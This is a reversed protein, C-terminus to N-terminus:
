HNGGISSRNCYDLCATLTKEEENLVTLLQTLQTNMRNSQDNMRNANDLFHSIYALRIWSIDHCLFIELQLAPPVALSVNVVKYCLSHTYLSVKWSSLYYLLYNFLPFVHGFCSKTFAISQANFYYWKADYVCM